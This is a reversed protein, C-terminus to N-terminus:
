HLYQDEYEMHTSSVPDTVESCATLNVRDCLWVVFLCFLCISYDVKGKNRESMQVDHVHYNQIFKYKLM